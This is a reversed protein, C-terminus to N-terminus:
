RKTTVSDVPGCVLPHMRVFLSLRPGARLAAVAYHVIM